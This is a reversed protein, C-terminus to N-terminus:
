IWGTKWYSAPLKSALNKVKEADIQERLRMITELDRKRKSDARNVATLQGLKILFLAEKSVFNVKYGYVEMEAIDNFFLQSAPRSYVVDFTFGRKKLRSIKIQECKLTLKSKINWGKRLFSSCFTELTEKTSVYIDIDPSAELHFYAFQAFGGWIVYDGKRSELYQLIEICEKEM